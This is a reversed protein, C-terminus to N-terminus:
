VLLDKITEREGVLEDNTLAIKSKAFDDMEYSTIVEYAGPATTKVPMGAWVGEAFGYRGESDVAVSHIAGVTNLDRVHDILANAASAASSLGRAEIIAAGRKGVTPLYENKLWAEDGIVSAADKGGIKAHTFDAFMTPSHNGYIFLDSVDNISVGAKKALQARGRNEDLRVMATFRDKPLRKAQNAAIMVNTNCPNGVVAVRANDAAVADIAKGQAIFIKGNDKLLDAREMGPGRPKSGVLLAWNVDKFAVEAEGTLVMDQLLPFACDELEMAVGKLAKQPGEVPIELLQLIVPQDKGFMEGSAIRFLLAYGINGAAGTVAVRIPTKTTM